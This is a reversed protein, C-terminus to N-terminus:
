SRTVVRRKDIENLFHLIATCHGNITSRKKGHERMDIVYKIIMEQIVRPGLDLLVQLDHIQVHDLFLNFNRRYKDRTQSSRVDETVPYITQKKQQEPEHQLQQTQEQQQQHQEEQEKQQQQQQKMDIFSQALYPLALIEV